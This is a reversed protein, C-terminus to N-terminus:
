GVADWQEQTFGAPPGHLFMLGPIDRPFAAPDAELIASVRAGGAKILRRAHRESIRLARSIKKTLTMKKDTRQLPLPNSLGIDAPMSWAPYGPPENKERVSGLDIM